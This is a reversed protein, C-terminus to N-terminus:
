PATDRVHIELHGWPLSLSLSEPKAVLLPFIGVKFINISNKDNKTKKKVRLRTNSKAIKRIFLACCPIGVRRTKKNKKAFSFPFKYLIKAYYM